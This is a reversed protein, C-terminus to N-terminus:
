RRTAASNTGLQGAWGTESGLTDVTRADSRAVKNERVATLQTELLDTKQKQQLYLNYYPNEQNQRESEVMETAVRHADEIAGPPLQDPTINHKQYTSSIIKDAAERIDDDDEGNEVVLETVM